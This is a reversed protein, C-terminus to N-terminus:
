VLRNVFQGNSGLQNGLSQQFLGVDVGNKELVNTLAAEFDEGSVEQNVNTTLESITDVLENLLAEIDQEQVNAASLASEVSTSSGSGPPPGQPPPGAPRNSKIADGIEAPDIGNAELIEGIADQIQKGNASRDSSGSEIASVAEQVQDLIESAKEDDVGIANLAGSLEQAPPPPPPGQLARGTSSPQIAFSTTYDPVNM